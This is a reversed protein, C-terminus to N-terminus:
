ENEDLLTVALYSTIWEENQLPKIHLYKGPFKCKRCEYEQHTSLAQSAACSQRDTESCGCLHRCSLPSDPTKEDNSFYQQMQPTACALNLQNDLLMACYPLQSLLLRLEKNRRRLKGAVREQRTVDIGFGLIWESGDARKLPRSIFRIAHEKSDPTTFFWRNDAINYTAATNMDCNRILQALHREFLDFDTKGVIDSPTRQTLASFAPNCRVYAFDSSMEKLFIHVPLNDFIAKLISDADELERIQESQISMDMVTFMIRRSSSDPVSFMEGRFIHPTSIGNLQMTCNKQFSRVKGSFLERIKLMITEREDSPIGSIFVDLLQEERGPHDNNDASCIFYKINSQKALSSFMKERMTVHNYLRKQQEQLDRLKKRERRFFFLLLIFAATVTILLM